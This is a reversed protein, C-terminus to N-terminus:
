APFTFTLGVLGGGGGPLGVKGWEHGAAMRLHSGIALLPHKTGSPPGCLGQLELM